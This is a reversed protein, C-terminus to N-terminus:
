GSRSGAGAASGRSPRAGRDTPSEPRIALSRFPSIPPSRRTPPPPVLLSPPILKGMTGSASSQRISRWPSAGSSGAPARRGKTPTSCTSDSLPAKLKLLPERIPLWLLVVNRNSSRCMRYAFSRGYRFLTAVGPNTPLHEVSNTGSRGLSPTSRSNMAYRSRRFSVTSYTMADTVPARIGRVSMFASSDSGTGSGGSSSCRRIAPMRFRAAFISRSRARARSNIPSNM